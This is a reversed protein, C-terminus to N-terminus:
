SLINQLDEIIKDLDEYDNEEYISKGEYEQCLDDIIKMDALVNEALYLSRNYEDNNYIRLLERYKISIDNVWADKNALYNQKYNSIDSDQEKLNYLVNLDNIEVLNFDKINDCTFNDCNLVKQPKTTMFDINRYKKKIFNFFEFHYVRANDKTYPLAYFARRQDDICDSIDEQSNFFTFIPELEEFLEPRVGEITRMCFMYFKYMDHMPFEKDFMISHKRMNLTGLNVNKTGKYVMHSFGFDIITAVIDGPVYYKNRGVKYEIFSGPEGRRIVVNNDNLDFHTFKLDDYATDLALCVQTLIILFDRLTVDEKFYDFGLKRNNTVYDNQILESISISPTLNEMVIYGKDEGKDILGSVSHEDDIEMPEKAIFAGFTMAFNPIKKRLTNILFSIICEAKFSTDVDKKSAKVVFYNEKGNMENTFVVSNAGQTSLEKLIGVNKVNGFNGLDTNWMLLQGSYRCLINQLLDFNYFQKNYADYLKFYDTPPIGDKHIDKCLVTHPIINEDFILDIMDVYDLVKDIDEDDYTEEFSDLIDQTLIDEDM